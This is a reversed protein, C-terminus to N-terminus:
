NVSLDARTMKAKLKKLIDFFLRLLVDLASLGFCDRFTFMSQIMKKVVLLSKKHMLLDWDSVLVFKLDDPIEVNVTVPDGEPQSTSTNPAPAM